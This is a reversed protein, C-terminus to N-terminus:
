TLTSEEEFSIKKGDISRPEKSSKTRRERYVYCRFWSWVRLNSLYGYRSGEIKVRALLAFDSFYIRLPEPCLRFDPALDELFALQYWRSPCSQLGVNAFLQRYDLSFYSQLSFFRVVIRTQDWKLAANKGAVIKSFFHM